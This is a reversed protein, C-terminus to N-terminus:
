KKPPYKQFLYQTAYFDAVGFVGLIAAGFGVVKWTLEGVRYKTYAGYGLAGFLAVSLLTNGIVVPNDANDRVRNGGTRAQDRLSKAKAKAKAEAQRAKDETEREIRDAQTSTKIDQSEFNSPVSSIHPSDVDVLSSTSTSETNVLEPVPNARAEEPTQESNKAAIDAYSM